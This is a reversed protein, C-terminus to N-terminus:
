CCTLVLFDRCKMWSCRVTNLLTFGLEAFVHELRATSPDGFVAQATPDDLSYLATPENKEQSQRYLLQLLTTKGVRRPGYLVLIEPSTMLARLSNEVIRTYM